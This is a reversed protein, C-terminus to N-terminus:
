EGENIDVLIVDSGIKVIQSWPVIFENERNFLSMMKASGGVVIADIHGTDVNIEVDGAHGLRKGSHVNVIDKAQLDSIRM